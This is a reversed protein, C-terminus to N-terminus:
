KRGHMKDFSQCQAHALMFLGESLSLYAFPEFHCGHLSGPEVQQGQDSESKHWQLNRISMDDMRM